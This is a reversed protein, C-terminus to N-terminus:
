LLLSSIIAVCGESFWTGVIERRDDSGGGDKMHEWTVLALFDDKNIQEGWKKSKMLGDFSYKVKVGWLDECM